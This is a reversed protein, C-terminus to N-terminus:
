ASRSDADDGGDERDHNTHPKSGLKSILWGLGAFPIVVALYCVSLVALCGITAYDTLPDCYPVTVTSPPPPDDLRMREGHETLLTM